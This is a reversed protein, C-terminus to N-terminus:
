IVTELRGLNSDQYSRVKRKKKPLEAGIEPHVSYISSHKRSLQKHSKFCKRIFGEGYISPRVTM